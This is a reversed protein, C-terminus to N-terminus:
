ERTIRAFLKDGKKYIPCVAAKAWEQLIRENERIERILKYTQHRVAEGGYKLIEVQIGDLGPSKNKLAL